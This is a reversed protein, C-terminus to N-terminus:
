QFRGGASAPLVAGAKARLIERVDEMVKREAESSKKAEERLAVLEKLAEAARRAEIDDRTSAAGLAIKNWMGSLSEISSTFGDGERSEKIRKDLFEMKELSRAFAERHPKMIEDHIAGAARLSTERDLFGASKLKDIEELKKVAKDLPTELSKRIAEAAKELDARVKPALEFAKMLMHGRMSIGGESVVPKLREQEALWKRNNESLKKFHDESAANMVSEGPPGSPSYEEIFDLIRFLTPTTLVDVGRGIVPMRKMKDLLNVWSNSVKGVASAIEDLKSIMGDGSRSFEGQISDMFPTIGEAVVKGFAEKMDGLANTIRAMKGATTEGMAEAVGGVQKEAAALIVEQAKAKDNLETFSTIMRKQEATLTVGARTLSTVGRTPDELAKGLMTAASEVSGFGTEALDAALRTAREFTDGSVSAFTALKAMAGMMADDDFRTTRQIASALEAMQSTTKGAAFGTAQLVADMRAMGLEAEGAMAVWEGLTAVFGSVASRAIDFGASWLATSKPIESLMNNARSLADLFQRDEVTFEISVDRSMTTIRIETPTFVFSTVASQEVTVERRAFSSVFAAANRAVVAPSPIRAPACLSYSWRSDASRDGVFRAAKPPAFDLLKSVRAKWM